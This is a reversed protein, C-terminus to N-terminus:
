VLLNFHCLNCYGDDKSSWSWWGKCTNCRRIFLNYDFFGHKHMLLETHDSYDSRIQLTKEFLESLVKSFLTHHEYKYVILWLENHLLPVLTEKQM